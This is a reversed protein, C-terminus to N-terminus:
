NCKECFQRHEAYKRQERCSPSLQDSKRSNGAKSSCVWQILFSLLLTLELLLFSDLFLNAEDVASLSIGNSAFFQKAVLAFILTITGLIVSLQFFKKM